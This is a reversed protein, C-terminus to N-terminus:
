ARGRPPPLPLGLRRAMWRLARGYGCDEIAALLAVADEGNAGGPEIVWVREVDDVRLVWEAGWAPHSFVRVPLPHPLLSSPPKPEERLLTFGLGPLWVDIDCWAADRVVDAPDMRVAPKRAWAGSLAGRMSSVLEPFADARAYARATVEDHGAARAAWETARLREIREALDDGCFAGGPRVARYLRPPAIPDEGALMAAWWARAFRRVGPQCAAGDFMHAEALARDDASRAAREAYLALLEATGVCQPVPWEILWTESGQDAALCLADLWRVAARFAPHVAACATM